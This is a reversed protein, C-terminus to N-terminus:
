EIKDFNDIHYCSIRQGYIEYIAVINTMDYNFKKFIMEDPLVIGYRLKNMSMNSKTFLTVLEGVRLTYQKNSSFKKLIQENM